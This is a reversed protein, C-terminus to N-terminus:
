SFRFVETPLYDQSCTARDIRLYIKNEKKFIHTQNSCGSINNFFVKQRM